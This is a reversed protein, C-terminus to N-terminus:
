AGASAPFFARFTSGGSRICDQDSQCHECQDINGPCTAGEQKLFRCRNSTMDLQFGYRESFVKMRLLDSGKGGAYFDFPRKSSYELTGQIAFFGEFIRKRDEEVIGVGYDKVVLEVGNRRDQAFLEIRGGDPTNEVANKVLGDVLKEMVDRPMHVSARIELGKVLDVRRHAHKEELARVREEVFESLPIEEEVSESLGFEEELRDRM